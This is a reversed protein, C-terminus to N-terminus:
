GKQTQKIVEYRQESAARVGNREMVKEEPRKINAGNGKKHKRMIQFRVMIELM